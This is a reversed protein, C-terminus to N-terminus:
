AWRLAHGARLRHFSNGGAIMPLRKREGDGGVPNARRDFGGTKGDIAYLPKATAGIVRRAGERLRKYLGPHLTVVRSTEFPTIPNRPSKLPLFEFDGGLGRPGASRTGRGCATSPTGERLWRFANGRGMEVWRTKGGTLGEPRAASKM